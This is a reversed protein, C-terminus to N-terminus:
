KPIPVWAVDTRTLVQRAVEVASPHDQVLSAAVRALPLPAAEVCITVDGESPVLTIPLDPFSESLRDKLWEGAPGPPLAAVLHKPAAPDALRPVAAQLHNALMKGAQVPEPYAELFLGAADIDRIADLIAARARRHLEDRLGPVEDARKAFAKWLGGRPDLVDAQFTIDFPLSLRPELRRFVTHAAQALSPTGRDASQGPLLELRCCVATPADTAQRSALPLPEFSEAFHALKERILGLEQNFKTLRIAVARFVSLTNEVVRRKLQLRCYELLRPRLDSSNTRRARPLWGSRTGKAPFEGSGANAFADLAARYGELLSRAGETLSSLHQALIRAASEAAKLRRRPDDVLAILREVAARGLQVSLSEKKLRLAKELPAEVSSSEGADTGRVQRDLAELLQGTAAYPAPTNALHEAVIREFYAEPPDGWVAAAAAFFQNTLPEAELGLAAAQRLTEERMGEEDRGGPDSQWRTVAHRCLLNAAVEAVAHRPFTLRALGVTRLSIPGRSDLHTAERYGGFAKGAATACDLYLYEALDDLAAETQADELDDGVHVLYCDQFPGGATNAQHLGGQPDGPYSVGRCNFHYLESLTAYANVRALEAQPPRSGTGHLLVGYPGQDGVHLETLVQRVAFAVDILMGGGTGGSIAAVLFVRPGTEVLSLGTAARAAAAAEPSALDALVARLHGLVNPLDAVLALRGLARVGETLQSRPIGYLWRRDLWRLLDRARDRYHEPRHLPLWLTEESALAEEDPGGAPPRLGARDTDLHLFRCVPVKAPDGFRQRLRHRLHRLVAGALGGLGLFLTPRLKVDEAPPGSERQALGTVPVSKAATSPTLPPPAPGVLTDGDLIDDGEAADPMDATREFESPLAEPPLECEPRDAAPPSGPASSNGLLEDVLTRCNPFRQDPAKALARAIVPRDPAPLPDLLPPSTLHQAALQLTTRGPFPRTGTLMEQYVIALSYQDSFRSVRGDFAEPSAYIPTVGGTATVSTGCLDKVLGFDAVKIRGGILLLNQPKIDLHQLGHRENMYDLGDAADRLHGLLEDRPIGPLGQRRCAHFRDMLSEQALETVIFVQNDIIEVRELSLLFPHRVEKIRNLAKLEQEARADNRNGFIIKLAKILGGPATVKWVEGYGGTGLRDLLRYGPIPELGESAVLTM